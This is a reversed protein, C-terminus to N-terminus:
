AFAGGVWKICVTSVSKNSLFNELFKTYVLQKSSDNRWLVIVSKWGWHVCTNYVTFFVPLTRIVYRQPAKTYGSNCHFFSYTNCVRLTHKYGQTDLMLRAHTMADDGAQRARFYLEVNDWLLCSKWPHTHTHTHTHTYTHLNSCMFHIKIKELVKIEIMERELLFRALHSWFHVNTKMYLLEEQGIKIFSSSDRLGLTHWGRQTLDTHIYRYVTYM